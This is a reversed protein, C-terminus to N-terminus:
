EFFTQGQHKTQLAYKTDRAVNNRKSAYYQRGLHRYSGALSAAPLLAILVLTLLQM